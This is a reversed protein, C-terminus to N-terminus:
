GEEFEKNPVLDTSTDQAKQSELMHVYANVSFLKSCVESKQLIRLFVWRRFLFVSWFKKMCLHDMRHSFRYLMHKWVDPVQGSVQGQFGSDEGQQQGAVCFAGNVVHRELSLFFLVKGQKSSQSYDGIKGEREGGRTAEERTPHNERAGANRESQQGQPFIPSQEYDVQKSDWVKRGLQDVKKGIGIGRPGDLSERTQSKNDHFIRKALLLFFLSGYMNACKM